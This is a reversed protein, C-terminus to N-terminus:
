IDLSNLVERLKEDSPRPADYSIINGKPDLLIFRPIANIYYNQIFESQMDKDALLQTAGTALDKNVIMKRWKDEHDETDVSLGIFKINKGAYEEEIERMFPMEVICPVCWTAWIDIFVYSGEFDELSATGGEYNKYNEFKPSPKGKGLKENIELQLKRQEELSTFLEETKKNESAILDKDLDKKNDEIHQKLDNSFAQKKENYEEESLTLFAQYDEGILGQTKRSKFRVFENDAAGEGEFSLSKGLNEADFDITLDMGNSVYLQFIGNYTVNFSTPQELRLTDLFSGDKKVTILISESNEPNYLRLKQGELPNTIDGKLIAYDIIPEEKCAMFLGIFLILFLFKINKM